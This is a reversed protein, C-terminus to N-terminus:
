YSFDNFDNSVEFKLSPHFRQFRECAAEARKKTDYTAPMLGGYHGKKDVAKLKGDKDRFCVVWASQANKDKAWGETIREKNLTEPDETGEVNLKIVFKCDVITTVFGYGYKKENEQQDRYSDNYKILFSDNVYPNYINENNSKLYSYDITGRNNQWSDRVLNTIKGLKNTAILKGSITNNDTNPISLLFEYIVSKTGKIKNKDDIIEKTNHFDSNKYNMRDNIYFSPKDINNIIKEKDDSINAINNSTSLPIDSKNLGNEFKESVITKINKITDMAAKIVSTKGTNRYVEINRVVKKANDAGGRANKVLFAVDVSINKNILGKKSFYDIWWEIFKDSTRAERYVQEFFKEM